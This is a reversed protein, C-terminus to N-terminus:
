ISSDVATKKQSSDIVNIVNENKNLFPKLNNQKIYQSDFARVTIMQNNQNQNQGVKIPTRFENENPHQEM